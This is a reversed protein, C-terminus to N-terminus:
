EVVLLIIMYSLRLEIIHISIRRIYIYIYIYLIYWNCHRNYMYLALPISSITSSPLHTRQQPPTLTESKKERELTLSRIQLNATQNGEALKSKWQHTYSVADDFALQEWVVDIHYPINFIGQTLLLTPEPNRDVLQLIITFNLIIRSLCFLDELFLHM